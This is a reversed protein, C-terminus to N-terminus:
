YIAVRFGIGECINKGYYHRNVAAGFDSSDLYEGGRACFPVGNLSSELTWESINGAIDFINMKCNRNNYTDKTAGTTLIYNYTKKNDQIDINEVKDIMCYKAFDNVNFNTGRYNGWSISDKTFESIDSGTKEMMFKLTLDWQIGFLLSSTEDGKTVKGALIQARNTTVNKIPSVNAQSLPVFSDPFKEADIVKLVTNDIGAEYRGIYFGGNYFVSKLMKKKQLNYDSENKINGLIECAKYYKDSYTSYPVSSYENLQDECEMRFDKAYNQMDQEIKTYQEDTLDENNNIALLEKSYITRPVEVWVYENGDEDTIILGDAMPDKSNLSEQAISYGAPLFPKTEDTQFKEINKNSSKTNTTGNSSSIKENNRQRTEKSTDMETKNGGTILVM